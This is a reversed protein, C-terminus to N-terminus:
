GSRRSRPPHLWVHCPVGGTVAVEDTRTCGLKKAVRLSRENAAAILSILQPAAVRDRVARAAETAYGNGWHERAVTWGLEPRADGAPSHQWNVPDFYNIGVRGVLVGDRREVILKGFPYTEWDDLWGRVVARPDEPVGGLWDM